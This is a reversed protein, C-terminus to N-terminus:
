PCATASRSRGRGRGPVVAVACRPLSLEGGRGVRELLRNGARTLSGAAKGLMPPLPSARLTLDDCLSSIADFERLNGDNLSSNLRVHLDHAIDYIEDLVRISILSSDNMTIRSLINNILNEVRQLTSREKDMGTELLDKRVENFEVIVELADNLVAVTEHDNVENDHWSTEM